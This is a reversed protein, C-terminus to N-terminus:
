SINLDLLARATLHTLSDKAQPNLAIGSTVIGKGIYTGVIREVSTKQLWCPRGEGEVDRGGNGLNWSQILQHAILQVQSWTKQGWGELINGKGLCEELGRYMSNLECQVECRKGVKDQQDELGLKPLLEEPAWVKEDQSFYM